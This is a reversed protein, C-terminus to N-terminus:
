EAVNYELENSKSLTKVKAVTCKLLDYTNGLDFDSVAYPIAVPQTM